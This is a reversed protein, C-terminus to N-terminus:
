KWDLRSISGDGTIQQAQTTISNVLWLNGMYVCAILRPADETPKSEWVVHQPDLGQSGEPPFVQHINSGDRDMVMLKYRSTESQEPFISQLFAVSFRKGDQFPSTSPYVFMGTQPVLNISQNNTIIYSGLDFLPSAENDSISTKPTHLTTYLINSDPSWSIGPSWAWDANTKYPTIEQLQVLEKKEFDLLGISDPRTYALLSGDKSWSFGTGWWGYIGGSNAELIEENSLVGGTANVKLIHLDNNAQWGPAISRPEVTSYSIALGSGPIWDAFHIVNKIRLDVPKADSQKVNVMWLSNIGDSAEKADSRTYLLWAGDQSLSFVRGDLDGSTAVPRRNGTTDEMIWANGATIYALTGGIPLVTFPTQVGVMVIESVAELVTITKFVTRSKEQDDEYLIRYTIQQQGNVGAQILLTQGEPLSENKVTQSQFPIVQDENFFEERIRKVTIQMGDTLTTQLPPEVSDLNNITIDANRIASAVTSGTPVKVDISKGDIIITSHILDVTPTLPNCAALFLLIGIASIALLRPWLSNRKVKSLPTILM